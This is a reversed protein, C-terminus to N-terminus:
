MRTAALAAAALAIGAAALFTAPFGAHAMALGATMSGIAIGLALATYFTGM